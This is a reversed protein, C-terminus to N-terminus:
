AVLSSRITLHTTPRPVITDQCGSSLGLSHQKDSIKSERDLDKKDICIVGLNTLLSQGDTFYRVSNVVESTKIQRYPKRTIYKHLKSAKRYKSVDWLMITKDYSASAVQKGDPSFAVGTVWGSHGTLTKVHRGTAADWLMITKDWSASAVQKGDPSFAVSTVCDSHGTLTKVYGGTAVDWLMITQDGSASAVQMGDPSFAVSTVVGSHGTLTKNVHTNFITPTFQVACQINHLLTYPGEVGEMTAFAVYNNYGKAESVGMAFAGSDDLAAAAYISKKGNPFTGNANYVHLNWGDMVPFPELRYQSTSNRICVSEALLGIEKFSYSSAKPNFDERLGVTAAVGYSRGTYIYGTKDLKRHGSVGGSRGSADQASNLILGQLDLDPAFSFTGLETAKWLSNDRPGAQGTKGVGIGFNNDFSAVTLNQTHQVSAAVPTIAGAWLAGPVIAAINWLLVLSLYKYNISWDVRMSCLIESLKLYEISLGNGALKARTSLNLITCLAQVIALGM